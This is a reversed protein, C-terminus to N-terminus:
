AVWPGDEKLTLKGPKDIRHYHTVSALKAANVDVPPEDENYYTLEANIKPNVMFRPQLDMTFLSRGYGAGDLTVNIVSHIFEDCIAVLAQCIQVGGIIFIHEGVTNRKYSSLDARHAHHIAEFINNVVITDNGIMQKSMSKSVVINVRNPLPKSGMSEFTRRGMIVINGTTLRKFLKLDPSCHWPLTNNEGITYDRSSALIMVVSRLDKISVRNNDETVAYVRTTLLFFSLTEM